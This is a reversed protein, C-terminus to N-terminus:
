SFPSHSTKRRKSKDTGDIERLWSMVLALCEGDSSRKGAEPANLERSEQVSFDLRHISSLRM